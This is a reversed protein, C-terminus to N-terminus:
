KIMNLSLTPALKRIENVQKILDNDTINNLEQNNQETSLLQLIIKIGAFNVDKQQHLYCIFELQKLDQESYMRTKGKTRYPNILGAEEYSRLMRPTVNLLKATVSISYLPERQNKKM